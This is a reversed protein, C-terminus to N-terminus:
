NTSQTSVGASEFSAMENFFLLASQILPFALAAGSGEGLRLGLNLLPKAQLFALMQAHAQENSQHCFVAYDCVAPEMQAAILFASTAIFGDVLILMKNEAAQLFAGCMQAIEFGGYTALTELPSLQKQNQALAKKLVAIKHRLGSADLGAGSGVCKEIEIQCIVSMIASASSTNGIGMEGLALLNCGKRQIECVIKAGFDICNEAETISMAPEVCFNKTGMGVKQNVMKPHPPFIHNVGADVISMEIQHQRCFVNIAAGGSLFNMVMQYTVEQPYPSVGEAAIGHDGAFVILHPKIITPALTNQISALQLAVEELQGLAGQPKTKFNIKHIIAESLSHTLRAVSFTKM